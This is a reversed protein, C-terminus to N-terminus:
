INLSQLIDLSMLGYRISTGKQPKLVKTGSSGVTDQLVKYGQTSDPLYSEIYNEVKYTKLVDILGQYHDKDPNTLIVVEITRDWFPMYKSLCNSVSNDPGGDTLIQFSKYNILIADGQGVDCAILQLKDNPFAFVSIWVTANLLLLLVAFNKFIKM